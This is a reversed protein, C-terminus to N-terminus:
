YKSFIKDTTAMAKRLVQCHVSFIPCYKLGDKRRCLITPSSVGSYKLNTANAYFRRGSKRRCQLSLENKM